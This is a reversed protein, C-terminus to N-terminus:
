LIGPSQRSKVFFTLADDDYGKGNQAQNRHQSQGQIHAQNINLASADLPGNVGRHQGTDNLQGALLLGIQPGDAVQIFVAVPQPITISSGLDINIHPAAGM